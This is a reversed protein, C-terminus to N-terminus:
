LDPLELLLGEMALRANVNTDLQNLSHDMARLVGRAADTTLRASILTIAEDKDPNSIPAASHSNRIVVDRWFSLWVLLLDRLDKRNKSAADAFAFRQVRNAYLLQEGAELWAARQRLAAQDEHWRLALGPRGLSLGALLTAQPAPISRKTLAAALEKVPMPRLRLLECRSVITAPLSDADAATLCLIVSPNPEELTKLLANAAEESATEFELFLAVQYRSELPTRSLSRSLERVAAIKIERDGEQREVILLDVHQARALGRCARCEGCFEGPEPPNTCNLAQALRLVLTRRGVGDPGTLLYAHRLRGTAIQTKLLQVAWEHGLLAWNTAIL